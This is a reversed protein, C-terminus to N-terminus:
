KRKQVKDALIQKAGDLTGSMGVIRGSEPKSLAIAYEGNPKQFIYYTKNM